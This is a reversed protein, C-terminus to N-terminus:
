SKHLFGQSTQQLIDYFSSPRSTSGSCLEHIAAAARLLTAEEWPRGILQFGIPMGQKDQGVPVSIAPFGLLNPALVFRQLYATVEFNSEGCELAAPLIIPAIMGTTPTVILDVQKFVQMYFFMQRRRLRQGAVYNASSFSNFLCVNARIDHCLETRRRKYHPNLSCRMHSGISVLHANRLEELEPLRIDVTKCGYNSSLMSLTEEFKESIDPSKVDVVWQAYKGLKLTRLVNFKSTLSLNPLCIPPLSSAIKDCSSPDAIAAYVLITDEVTAALPSIVDVTGGDCMSGKTSTRSYTTKLGVIGCLSAPIRVSGGGDTGLAAPCLGCAVIAAPGSSSGGTYREFSHPNRVTGYHSNNGTVGMGFEHMAAKGIFIVGCRRLRSVCVADEIVVGVEHYWTTGGKTPHPLCNVDDKVAIFIGDLISLAKGELHRQTSAAAQAILDKPDFSVLLPAPPKRSHFDEVVSIIREAIITPTTLNSQYAHAYDRITWYLFPSGPQASLERRPKHPPLCATALRVRALPDEDEETSIVDHEPELKPFEPQFMPKEPIVTEELMQTLGNLRTLFSLLLPGLFANELVWVFIKLLLGSFCPAKVQPPDYSVASLDIEEAPAMVRPKRAAGM